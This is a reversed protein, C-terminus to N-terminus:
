VKVFHWKLMHMRAHLVVTVETVALQLREVFQKDVLKSKKNRILTLMARPVYVFARYMELFSFKKKYEIRSSISKPIIKDKEM